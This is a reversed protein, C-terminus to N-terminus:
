KYYNHMKTKKVLKLKNFWRWAKQNNKAVIRPECFYKADIKYKKPVKGEMVKEMICEFSDRLAGKKLYKNGNFQNKENVVETWSKYKGTKYRNNIVQAVYWADEYSGGIEGYM